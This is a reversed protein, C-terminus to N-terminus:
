AVARAAPLPIRRANAALWSGFSCVTPCLERTGAVSRLGCHLMAFERKFQYMNALDDADPLRRSRFQELTMPVYRVPEGVAGALRSAIEGMTLHEGAVGITMGVTEDGRRFIAAVCRGIDDAAIWPIKADGAPLRITLVGDADRKPGLGYLVLTEWYQSTYLLTTPVNAFFRNAEGKADFQPVNYRGQLMQMRTGPTIVARTDEATSWVVHHVGARAAASALTYAQALERTASNHEWYNTVCFAGFAGKMARAVSDANDIDAAVVTAGARVLARAAESDPRRTVARVAFERRPDALLARALGGGQAGTAGFVTVIKTM